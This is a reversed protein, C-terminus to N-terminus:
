GSWFDELRPLRAPRDSLTHFWVPFNGTADRQSGVQRIAYLPDSM